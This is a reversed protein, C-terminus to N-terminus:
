LFRAMGFVARLKGNTCFRTDKDQLFLFFHFSDCNEAAHDGSEQAKRLIRLSLVKGVPDMPLFVMEDIFGASNKGVLFQDVGDARVDEMLRDNAGALLVLGTLLEKDASKGADADADGADHAARGDDTRGARM